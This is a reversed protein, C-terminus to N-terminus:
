NKGQCQKLGYWLEKTDNCFTFGQNYWRLIDDKEAGGGVYMVRELAVM